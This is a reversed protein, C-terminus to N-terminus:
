VSFSRPNHASMTVYAAEINCAFRDADFLPATLLNRTLKEKLSNLQAPDRALELARAEYADLSETVLEPLGVAQLLGAAVRGAFAEGKCTLVPLGAGLADAATAHANYPLTDLFLDASVHRALHVDLAVTDAYVLRAPNIGQAVAECELNTRADVPPQRLWLVSGPVAALLRMWVAFLPRTIKWSNNFSCFVFGTEPLGAEARSPAIGAPRAPDTPFYTDPLHVLQESFFPQHEFPAVIKDAILYDIFPAGTTGPYGLWSVQVPAPRHAFIQLRTLGTHGGLDIAIDIEMERLRRAIEDSNLAAFDHFRDFGKMLRARIASDDSLGTAIGIVQFRARDHREILPALQFAVAHERFDASVYALRIRDHRYKEGHWLPPVPKPTLVRVTGAACELQLQKDGSMGLFTLPPAVTVALEPSIEAVRAWDCLNLAAMARNALAPAYGPDLALAQDYSELAERYRELGALVVGRNYFVAAATPQLALARDLAVLAEEFQQQQSLIVGRNYLAEFNDPQAALLRDYGALAEDFRQAAMLAHAHHARATVDSPNAKVAKHLLPIAEDYQGQQAKLYGLMHLAPFYGADTRLLQRYLKEAQVLNGTRHAAVGQEFQQRLVM